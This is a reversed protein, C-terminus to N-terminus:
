DEVSYHPMLYCTIAIVGSIIASINDSVEIGAKALLETIYEQACNARDAKPIQGKLWLDEAYGAADIAAAIVTTLMKVSSSDPMVNGVTNLVSLLAKLIPSILSGYKLYDKQFYYCLAVAVLLAGGVVLLVIQSVDM